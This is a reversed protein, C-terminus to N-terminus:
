GGLSFILGGVAVVVVLTLIDYMYIYSYQFIYQNRVMCYMGGAYM